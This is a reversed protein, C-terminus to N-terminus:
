GGEYFRNKLMRYFVMRDDRNMAYALLAGALVAKAGTWACVEELVTKRNGNVWSEHLEDIM